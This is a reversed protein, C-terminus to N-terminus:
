AALDEVALRCGVANLAKNLHGMPTLSDVNLLNQIAQGSIGLRGALEEKTIEQRRMASYLALKIAVLPPVVVLEQGKVVPGPVPIEENCRIYAGLAAVLCDEALAHAGRYTEGGTNAGYVDPFTVAFGEGDDENGTIKCPYAYQM